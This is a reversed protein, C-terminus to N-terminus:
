KRYKLWEKIITVVCVSAGIVFSAAICSTSLDPHFGLEELGSNISITLVLLATGGGVLLARARDEQRQQRCRNCMVDELEIVREQCFPCPKIRLEYYDRGAVRNNDGDVQIDM